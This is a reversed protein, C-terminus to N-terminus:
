DRRQARAQRFAALLSDIRQQTALPITAGVLEAQTSQVLERFAEIAGEDLGNVKLGNDIMVHLAEENEVRTKLSLTRMEKEAIERLATQHDPALQAFARASVIFAGLTYNIPVTNIYAVRTFWQLVIAAAPPAYVVDVMNTQLGLLVDPIALPVSRVNALRFLVETIPEEELRWVTHRRIDEISNIPSKSLIHVFGIDAWGLHVFGKDQYAKKLTTNMSDIVCDIEEYDDFLFPMQLGLIDPLVISAGQGAFGGGHLQGIRMKRLVVKEDGQVGGAYIKLQVAGDTAQQVKADISRLAKVWSSGEPAITAVKLTQACLAQVTALVLLLAYPATRRALRPRFSHM